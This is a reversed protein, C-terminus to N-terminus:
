IYICIHIYHVPGCISVTTTLIDMIITTVLTIMAEMDVMDKIVMVMIEMIGMDRIGTTVM